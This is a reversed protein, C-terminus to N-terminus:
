STCCGGEVDSGLALGAGGQVVGKGGWGSCKGARRELRWLLLALGHKCINEKQRSPCTCKLDVWDNPREHSQFEASVEYVEAGSGKCRGLLNGDESEVVDFLKKGRLV